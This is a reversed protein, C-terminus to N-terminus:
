GPSNLKLWTRQLKEQLTNEDVPKVIYNSAGAKIAELVKDKESETTVMLFPLNKWDHVARVLKLLEIGNLNPMNWDSIVLEFPNGSTKSAILVQYAERGDSAETVYKFGLRRLYAKMLERLSAMDDVILIRTTDPFM